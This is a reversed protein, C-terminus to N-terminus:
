SSVGQPTSDPPTACLAPWQAAWPAAQEYAAAAALVCSDDLHRGVLQLGVPLGDGTWGAPVSAAPQGTMNFPFALSLWQTPSVMRGEVREPGQTHIAFPPVTLTPTILLDYDQMLRRMRNYLAQRMRNATTIDEARWPHALFATLHPSMEHGHRAALARMGELDTNGAVLGWFTEFPDEWDPTVSEVHCGLAREFVSAARHVLRRVQPDVAAYGFDESYAIRKGRFGQGIAGHWDIDDPISLRDRADPGAMVSLMLAGDRVSRTMPGIHELTEWSSLGPYREDRCGPYLPVRGMSAKMGFLGCHAAPIRVSGGGDSGVALPTMGTAVSVGSGASSGGPTLEPQWPNRTTEFIPNHGVGSYGFEPVNTKGIMIAGAAKLREVVVDDEEPVFDRYAPSGGTTRVGRTAVLDKIAVPIGALPGPDEGKALQEDVRTAEALAQDASLTCFAHLGGDLREIRELAARTMERASVQRSRILELRATADLQWLQTTM